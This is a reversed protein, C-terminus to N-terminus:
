RRAHRGPDAYLAQEGHSRWGGQARRTAHPNAGGPFIQARFNIGASVKWFQNLVRDHEGEGILLQQIKHHMVLRREITILDVAMVAARLREDAEIILEEGSETVVILSKGDPSLGVLRAIRM